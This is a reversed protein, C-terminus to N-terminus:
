RILTVAIPSAIRGVEAVVKVVSLTDGERSPPNNTYLKKAHEIAEIETPFWTRNSYNLYTGIVCYPEAKKLRRSSM